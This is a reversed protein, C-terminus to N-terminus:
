RGRGELHELRLSEARELEQPPTKGRQKRFGNLIVYSAADSDWFYFVRHPGIRLEWVDNMKKARIMKALGSSGLDRLQDVVAGIRAAEKKNGGQIVDIVYEQYPCSGNARRHFEIDAVCENYDLSNYEDMAGFFEGLITGGKRYLFDVWM